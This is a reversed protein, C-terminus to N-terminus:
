FSHNGKIKRLIKQSFFVISYSKGSGQTHWFVGLKTDNNEKSSKFSEIARNVGIYQHNRAIIKAKKYGSDDFLIFNEFIDMFNEKSCIGDLM